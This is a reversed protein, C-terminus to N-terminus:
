GAQHLPMIPELEVTPADGWFNELDYFKRAEPQMVHVVVSGFDILVWWGDNRGEIGIPQVGRAKLERQVAEAVAVAQRSNRAGAIIFYDALVTSEQVDLVRIDEAKGESLCGLVIRALELPETQM